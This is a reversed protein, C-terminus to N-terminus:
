KGKKSVKKDANVNPKWKPKAEQVQVQGQINEQKQYKKAQIESVEILCIPEEEWGIGEHNPFGIQISGFQDKKGSVEAHIIIGYFEGKEPIVPEFILSMQAICQNVKSSQKRDDSHQPFADRSPVHCMVLEFPGVYVSIHTCGGGEPQVSEHKLGHNIAARQLLTESRGRRYHGLVYKAQEEGLEPDNVMAAYSDAYISETREILEKVFDPPLNDILMEKLTQNSSKM